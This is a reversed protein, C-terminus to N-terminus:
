RQISAAVGDAGAADGAREGPLLSLRRRGRAGSVAAGPFIKRLKGSIIKDGEKIGNTLTV